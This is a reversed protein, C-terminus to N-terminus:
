ARFLWGLAAVANNWYTARGEARGFHLDELAACRAFFLTRPDRDGVNLDRLLRGRDQAPDTRAADSWDIVGTVERTHPDVLVHETGLDNHCFVRVDTPPPADAALFREIPTRYAPPIADRIDPYQTRAEDLWEQPPADDVVDTEIAAIDRMLTNLAVVTDPPVRTPQSVGSLPTGRLKRYVILGADPEVVIPEPVPVRTAARVTALIEAERRVNEPDPIRDLRVVLEGDVEYAVHEYGTGLPRVDRGFRALLQRVSDWEM